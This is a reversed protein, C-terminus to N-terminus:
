FYQIRSFLISFTPMKVVIKDARSAEKLWGEADADTGALARNFLFTALRHQRNRHKKGVVRLVASDLQQGSVEAVVVGSEEDLGTFPQTFNDSLGQPVTVSPTVTMM